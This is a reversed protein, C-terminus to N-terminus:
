TVDKVLRLSYGYTKYYSSSDLRTGTGLYRGYSKSYSSAVSTWFISDSGINSFSGSYNGAPIANFEYDDTGNWNSPFGQIVSNDTSKLKTGAISSGGIETALTDWETDSPIHWDEPLLTAKNSELYDVAYWNYLLGCKYTGDIGYSAENNDYYWAAPTTPSGGSGIPLTSGNYNFKYDLNEALWLQNGIQVYLYDRGGITM